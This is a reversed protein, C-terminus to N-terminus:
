AQDAVAIQPAISQLAKNSMFPGAYERRHIPLKGMIIFGKEYPIRGKLQATFHNKFVSLLNREMM